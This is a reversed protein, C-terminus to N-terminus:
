RRREHVSMVEQTLRDEMHAQAAAKTRFTESNTKNWIASWRDSTKWVTAVVVVQGHKMGRVILHYRKDMYVWEVRM